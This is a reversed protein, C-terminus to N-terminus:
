TLSHSFLYCFSSPVSHFDCFFNRSSFDFPLFFPISFKWRWDSCQAPLHEAKRCSLNCDRWCSCQIPMWDAKMQRRTLKPLSHFKWEQPHWCGSGLLSSHDKRRSVCGSRVRQMLKERRRVDWGVVDSTSESTGSLLSLLLMQFRIELALLLPKRFSLLLFNLVPIERMLNKQRWLQWSARWSRHGKRGEWM